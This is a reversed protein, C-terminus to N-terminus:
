NLSSCVLKYEYLNLLQEKYCYVGLIVFFYYLKEVEKKVIEFIDDYEVKRVVYFGYGEEDVDEM